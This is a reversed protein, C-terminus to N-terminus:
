FPLPTRHTTENNIDSMLVRAGYRLNMTTSRATNNQIGICVVQLLLLKLQKQDKVLIKNEKKKRQM